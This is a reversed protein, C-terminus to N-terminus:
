EDTLVFATDWRVMYMKESDLYTENSEYYLGAEDLADEVVQEYDMNKEDTYLEISLGRIKQYVINDAGFNDSDPYRFCIFPPHGPTNDQDFHDYAFPLGVAAIMLAVEKTTM